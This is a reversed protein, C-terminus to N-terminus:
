PALDIDNFQIARLHGTAPMSRSKAILHCMLIQIEHGRFLGNLTMWAFRQRSCTTSTAMDFVLDVAAAGDLVVLQGHGSLFRCSPCRIQTPFLDDQFSATFYATTECAGFHATDSLDSQLKRVRGEEGSATPTGVYASRQKVSIKVKELQKVSYFILRNNDYVISDAASGLKDSNSLKICIFKVDM